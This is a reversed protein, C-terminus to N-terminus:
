SQLFNLRLAQGPNWSQSGTADCFFTAIGINAAHELGKLEAQGGGGRGNGGARVPQMFHLIVAVAEAKLAFTITDAQDRAAAILPGVAERSDGLGRELVAARPEDDIALSHDQAHIPHGVEIRQM